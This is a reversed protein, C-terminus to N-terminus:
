GEDLAEDLTLLRGFGAEAGLQWFQGDLGLDAETVEQLSYTTPEGQWNSWNEVHVILRGDEARYLTERVGRTDTPKDNKDDGYECYQALEKGEFGVKRTLNQTRGSNISTMSGILVVITEM